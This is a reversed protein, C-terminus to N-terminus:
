RDARIVPPLVTHVLNGVLQVAGPARLEIAHRVQGIGPLRESFHGRLGLVLKNPIVAVHPSSNSRRQLQGGGLKAPLRTLIGHQVQVEFVKQHRFVAPSWSWACVGATGLQADVGRQGHVVHLNRPTVTPNLDGGPVMLLM